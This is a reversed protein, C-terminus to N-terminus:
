IYMQLINAGQHNFPHRKKIDDYNEVLENIHQQICNLKDETNSPIETINVTYGTVERIYTNDKEEMHFKSKMYNDYDKQDFVVQESTWHKTVKRWIIPFNPTTTTMDTYKTEKNIQFLFWVTENISNSLIKTTPRSYHIIHINNDNEEILSKLDCIHEGNEAEILYTAKKHIKINPDIVCKFPRSGWWGISKSFTNDEDIDIRIKWEKGQITVKGYVKDNKIYLEIEKLKQKSLWNITNHEISDEFDGINFDGPEDGCVFNPPVSGYDDADTWLEILKEGDFILKNNNRYDDNGFHVVDGRSLGLSVPDFTKKYNKNPFKSNSYIYLKLNPDWTYTPGDGTNVIADYIYKQDENEEHLTSM